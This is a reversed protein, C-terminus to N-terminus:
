VNKQNVLNVTIIKLKSRINKQGNNAAAYDIVEQLQNMLHLNIRTLIQNKQDILQMNPLFQYQTLLIIM